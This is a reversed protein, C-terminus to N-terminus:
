VGDCGGVWGWLGDCVCIGGDRTRGQCPQRAIVMGGRRDPSRLRVDGGAERVRRGEVRRACSWLEVVEDDSRKRRRRRRWCCCCGGGGGGGLVGKDVSGFGVWVRGEAMMAVGEVVLGSVSTVRLILISPVLLLNLSGRRSRPALVRGAM